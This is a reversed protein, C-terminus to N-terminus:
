EFTMKMQPDIWSEQRADHIVDEPRLHGILLPSKPDHIRMNARVTDADYNAYCYRCLHGCSNYAGIDCSLYCACSERAPVFRPVRLSQGIAKEYVAITSCGSCDAGYPSLEDGEACPKITMDYRNGIEIFAKGLEIRM